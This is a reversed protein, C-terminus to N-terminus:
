TASEEPSSTLRVLPLRIQFTCGTPHTKHLLAEGGHLQAIHKVIALGLGTGGLERSRARDVRYFREFIREADADPIGVGFDRVSLLAWNGESVLSIEVSPSRSYKIANLILNTVAQELLQTEGSVQAEQLDLKLEMGAEQAAKRCLSVASRAVSDFSCPAFLREGSLQKQELAALSLIDQVLFNLRKAQRSLISLCTHLIEPNSQASDELTEVASLIGTLPTKVEHSVNAIFDSRFSELKRLNTLNTVSLLIKAGGERRLLVANLLLTYTQTASALLIERERTEGTAFIEKVYHILEPSASRTIHFETQNQPIQFLAAASRNWQEVELDSDVILVAETLANFIADRNNRETTLDAIRGRLQVAMSRVAEALERIAGREPVYIETEVEGEAIQSASEQLQNLPCRVRYFIYSTLFLVVVLGSFLAIAINWRVNTLITSMENTFISTRLIFTREGVRLPEACYLMWASETASYRIETAMKGSRLAEGVEPRGLHNGLNEADEVDKQAPSNAVVEGNEGIITIRVRERSHVICFEEMKPQNGAALIPAVIESLLRTQAILEREVEALYSTRFHNYQRSLVLASLAILLVIFVPVAFIITDRKKM